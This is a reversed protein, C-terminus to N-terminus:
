VSVHPKYPLIFISALLAQKFTSIPSIMATYSSTGLHRIAVLIELYEGVLRFNWLLVDTRQGAHQLKNQLVRPVKCWRVVSPHPLTASVIVNLIDAHLMSVTTQIMIAALRSANCSTNLLSDRKICISFTQPWHCLWVNNLLPECGYSMFQNRLTSNIVLASRGEHFPYSKRQHLLIKIAPFKIFYQKRRFSFNLLKEGSLLKQTQIQIVNLHQQSVKLSKM